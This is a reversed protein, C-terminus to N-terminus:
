ISRDSIECDLRRLCLVWDFCEQSQFSSVCARAPCIFSSPYMDSVIKKRCTSSSCFTNTNVYCPQQMQALVWAVRIHMRLIESFTAVKKCIESIYIRGCFLCLLYNVIPPCTILSQGAQQRISKPNQVRFCKSDAEHHTFKSTTWHSHMNWRECHFTYFCQFM